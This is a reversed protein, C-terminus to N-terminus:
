RGIKSFSRLVSLTQEHTRNTLDLLDLQNGLFCYESAISTSNLWRGEEIAAKLRKKQDPTWRAKTEVKAKLPFSGVEVNAIMADAQKKKQSVLARVRNQKDTRTSSSDFRSPKASPSVDIAIGMEYFRMKSLWSSHQNNSLKACDILRDLLAVQYLIPLQRREKTSIKVLQQNATSKYFRVEKPIDALLSLLQEVIHEDSLHFPIEVLMRGEANLDMFQSYITLDTVKPATQQEAFAANSQSMWWSQFNDYEFVNGILGWVSRLRQDLCDGQEQCIWWYDQSLRLFAIWWLYDSKNRFSQFPLVPKFAGHVLPDDSRWFIKNIKRM